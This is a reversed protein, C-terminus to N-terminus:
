KGPYVGTVVAGRSRNKEAKGAKEVEVIVTVEGEALGTLNGEEDISAITDDSVSWEAVPDQYNTDVEFKVTEGQEVTEPGEIKVYYKDCGILALAVVIMILFSIVRKKM